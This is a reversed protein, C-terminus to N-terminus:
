ARVDGTPMLTARQYQLCLRRVNLRSGSKRAARSGPRKASMSLTTAAAATGPRLRSDTAPSRRSGSSDSGDASRHNRRRSSGTRATIALWSTCPARSIISMGM